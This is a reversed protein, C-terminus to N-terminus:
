VWRGTLPHRTLQRGTERWRITTWESEPVPRAIVFWHRAQAAGGGAKVLHAVHHPDSGHRRAWETWLHVERLPVRLEIEIQQKADASFSAQGVILGHNDGASMPRDLLWVVGPGAHAHGARLDVNSETTRLLRSRLISGLHSDGAYTYHFFTGTGDDERGQPAAPDARM